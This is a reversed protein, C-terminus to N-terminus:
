KKLIVFDKAGVSTPLTTSEGPSGSTVDVAKTYGSSDIAVEEETANFYVCFDGTVYKTVGASVKTAEASTNAGFASPNAKRLAILGKYTNYVDAYATKRDLNVRNCELIESESWTKGGKTDAAYSDPNGNKTRLFEQGGNIFPTGQSLLVYAAALKDQAKVTALAANSLSTPFASAISDKGDTVTVALTSYALKDYLTYNDHCEVYHLSLAPNGTNNRNNSGSQGTLGKIIGTDYFTGQVQGRKFGGFEAGKIADRFDDDFAGVGTPVSQSTAAVAATAGSVVASTGGTWPEGYVMVNRDIKVLENYIDKMTSSEHVGMLDFRFGNIHYDNMWHRLSDIVYKKVMAHNTATENGCGSGNSYTDGNTRYFYKPVTMDYVSGSKTGSTHNYVVDMNVAIGANHFAQIMARMSKVADTGDTMDKVYRSEPTNWNYPNYGWNYATDATGVAAYEFMPLIQVHTVGLDRLHEYLKGGSKLAETIEDFTGKSDSNFAMCWDRIHMEFIVAENYSKVASGSNGFPNTYTSEWGSPAAASDDIDALQTAESDKSAVKAWIDCVAYSYSGNRLLYKYYKNSGVEGSVDDTKWTGDDQRTMDITEAITGSRVADADAFLQVKVDSSLPAWTTFVGGKYGFGSIDDVDFWSDLLDDGPVATVTDTGREDTYSVDVMGYSKLDESVTVTLGNVASVTLTTDGNKVVTNEKTLTIVDGTLTITHADTITGATIGQATDLTVEGDTVCVSVYIKGAVVFIEKYKGPFSFILDGTIKNTDSSAGKMVIFSIQKPSDALKVDFYQYDGNTGTKKVGADGWVGCKALEAEAFDDWIWLNTANSYACNIRIFGEAPAALTEDVKTGGGGGNSGGGGGGSDCAALGLSVCLCIALAGLTYLRKM